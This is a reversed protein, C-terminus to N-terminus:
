RCLGQLQGGFERLSQTAPTLNISLIDSLPLCEIKVPAIMSMRNSMVYPGLNDFQQSGADDNTSANVLNFRMSTERAMSTLFNLLAM